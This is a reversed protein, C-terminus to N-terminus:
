RLYFICSIFINKLIYSVTIHIIIKRKKARSTTRVPCQCQTTEPCLDWHGGTQFFLFLSPSEPVQGCYQGSLKWTGPRSASDPTHHHGQISPVSKPNQFVVAAPIEPNLVLSSAAGLSRFSVGEFIHSISISAHIHPLRRLGSFPRRYLLRHALGQLECLASSRSEEGAM